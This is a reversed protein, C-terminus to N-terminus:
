AECFTLAYEGNFIYNIIQKQSPTSTNILSEIVGKKNPEFPLTSFDKKFNVGEKDILKFLTEKSCWILTAAEKKHFNSVFNLENENLFRTLVREIKNSHYELDIAVNKNDNLIIVVKNKSHTISISTNSNKLSPRGSKSYIIEAKQDLTARLLLRTALWEKKRKESSLMLYREDKNQRNQYRKELTSVSETIDWFSIISEKPTSIINSVPM